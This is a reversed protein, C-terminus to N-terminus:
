RAQEEALERQPARPAIELKAHEVAVADQHLRKRRRRFLLSLLFAFSLALAILVPYATLDIGYFMAFFILSLALMTVGILGYTLYSGNPKPAYASATAFALKRRAQPM